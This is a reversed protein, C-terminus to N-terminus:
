VSIIRTYRMFTDEKQKDILCKMAKEKIEPFPVSAVIANMDYVTFRSPENRTILTWNSCLPIDKMKIMMLNTSKEIAGINWTPYVRPKSVSITLDNEVHKIVDNFKIAVEYEKNYYYLENPNIIM